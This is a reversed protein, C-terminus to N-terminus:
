ATRRERAVKCRNRVRAPIGDIDELIAPIAVSDRLVSPLLPRSTAVAKLNNAAWVERWRRPLLMETIEEAQDEAERSFAVPIRAVKVDAQGEVFIQLMGDPHSVVLVRQRPPRSRSDKVM